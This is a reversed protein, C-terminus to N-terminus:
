LMIEYGNQEAFGFDLLQKSTFYATVAKQSQACHHIQQMSLSINTASICNTDEEIDPNQNECGGYM